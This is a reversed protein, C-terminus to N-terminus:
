QVNDTPQEQAQPVDIRFIDPRERELQVSCLLDCYLQVIGPLLNMLYLAQPMRAVEDTLQAQDLCSDILRKMTEDDRAYLPRMAASRKLSYLIYTAEAGEPASEPLIRRFVHARVQATLEDRVRQPLRSDPMLDDLLFLAACLYEVAFRGTQAGDLGLDRRLEANHFLNDYEALIIHEYLRCYEEMTLQKSEENM